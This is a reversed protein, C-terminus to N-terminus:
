VTLQLRSLDRLPKRRNRSKRSEEPLSNNRNQLGASKVLRLLLFTLFSTFRRSPILCVSIGAPIVPPPEIVEPADVVPMAPFVAPGFLGELMTECFKQTYFGTSLANGSMSGKEAHKHTKDCLVNSNTLHKALAEDSTAILYGKFLPDGTTLCKVDHMCGDVEHVTMNFETLMSQVAVEQWGESPKPWEFTVSGHKKVIIRAVQKWGNLMKLSQFRKRKM